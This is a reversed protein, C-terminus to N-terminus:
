VKLTLPMGFNHMPAALVIIDATQLEDILADSLAL